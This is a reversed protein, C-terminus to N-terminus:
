TLDFKLRDLIEYKMENRNTIKRPIMDLFIENTGKHIPSKKYATM